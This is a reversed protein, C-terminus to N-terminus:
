KEKRVRETTLWIVKATPAERFLDKRKNKNRRKFLFFFFFKYRIFGCFEHFINSSPNYLKK